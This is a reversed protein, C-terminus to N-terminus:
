HNECATELNPRFTTRANNVALGFFWKMANSKDPYKVIEIHSLADPSFVSTIALGNNLKETAGSVACLTESNTRVEHGLKDSLGTLTKYKYKQKLLLHLTGLTGGAVVIGKATFTRRKRFLSTVQRTEIHYLNDRFYLKKREQKLM